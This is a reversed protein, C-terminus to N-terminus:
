KLDAPVGNTFQVVSYQHVVLGQSEATVEVILFYTGKQYRSTRLAYWYKRMPEAGSGSTTTGAEDMKFQAEVPKGSLVYLEEPHTDALTTSERYPTNLLAYLSATDGAILYAAFKDALARGESQSISSPGPTDTSGSSVNVSPVCGLLLLTVAVLCLKAALNRAV